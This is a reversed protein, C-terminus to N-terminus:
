MSPKGCIIENPRSRNGGRSSMERFDHDIGFGFIVKGLYIKNLFIVSEVNHWCFIGRCFVGFTTFQEPADFGYNTLREWTIQQTREIMPSMCIRLGGM